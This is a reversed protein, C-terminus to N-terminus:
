LDINRLRKHLLIFYQNVLYYNSFIYKIDTHAWPIMIEIAVNLVVRYSVNLIIMDVPFSLIMNCQTAYSLTNMTTTSRM